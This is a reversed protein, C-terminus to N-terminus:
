LYLRREPADDKSGLLEDVAADDGLVTGVFDQRARLLREEPEAFGPGFVRQATRGLDNLGELASQVSEEVGALPYLPDACPEEFEVFHRAPKVAAFQEDQCRPRRHPFGRQSQIDGLVYGRVVGRPLGHRYEREFHRGFRQEGTRDAGARAHILLFEAGPIKVRVLPPTKMVRRPFQDFRRDKEVVRGARVDHVDVGLKAAQTALM